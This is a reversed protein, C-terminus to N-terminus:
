LIQSCLYNRKCSWDGCHGRVLQRVEVNARSSLNRPHQKMQSSHVKFIVPDIKGLPFVQFWTRPLTWSTETQCESQLTCAYVTRHQVRRLACIHPTHWEGTKHTSHMANQSFNAHKTTRDKNLELRVHVYERACEKESLGDPPSGM